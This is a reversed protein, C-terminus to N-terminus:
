SRVRLMQELSTPSSGPLPPPSPLHHLPDPCDVGVSQLLQCLAEGPNTVQDITTRTDLTHHQANYTGAVNTLALPAEDAVETLARENRTLVATIEALGKINRTLAARNGHVFTGVERLGVDLNRLAADLDGREDSLFSAVQALDANVRRVGSDDNALTTTVHDLNDIVDVLGSRNDDLTGLLRALAHVTDNLRQGNGDLNAAGVDVLRSLAGNRNAGKPGLARDLDDLSSVIQDYEVPVATRSEPIRTGDALTPGSRWVPTLQLYRDGVISPPVIAATADAPVKYKASYSFEVHVTSGKAAVKTVHGVPVGLIRVTSGTYLGTTLPFDASAHITGPGSSSILWLGLVIALVAVGGMGALLGRTSLPRSAPRSM